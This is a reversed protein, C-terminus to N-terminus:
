RSACRTMSAFSAPPFPTTTRHPPPLRWGLPLRPGAHSMAPRDLLLLDDELLELLRALGAPLRYAPGDIVEEELVQPLDGDIVLVADERALVVQDLLETAPRGHRELHEDLFVARREDSGTESRREQGFEHAMPRLRFLLANWPDPRM